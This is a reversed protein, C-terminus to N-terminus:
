SVPILQLLLGVKHLASWFPCPCSANGGGGLHLSRTRGARGVVWPQCHLTHRRAKVCGAPGGDGLRPGPRAPGSAPGRAPPGPWAAPKKWGWREPRTGSGTARHRQNLVVPGLLGEGQGLPLVCSELEANQRQVKKEASAKVETLSSRRRGM